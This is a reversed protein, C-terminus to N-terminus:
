NIQLFHKETYQLPRDSIAGVSVVSGWFPEAPPSNPVFFSRLVLACMPAVCNYLKVMHVLDGAATSRSSNSRLFFHCLALAYMSCRLGYKGRFVVGGCRALPLRKQCLFVACSLACRLFYLSPSRVITSSSELLLATMCLKKFGFRSGGLRTVWTKSGQRGPRHRRIAAKSSGVDVCFVPCTLRFEQAPPRCVM